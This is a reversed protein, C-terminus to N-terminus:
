PATLQRSGVPEAGASGTALANWKRDKMQHYVIRRHQGIGKEAFVGEHTDAAERQCTRSYFALRTALHRWQRCIGAKGILLLKEGPWPGPVLVFIM